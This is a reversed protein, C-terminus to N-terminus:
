ASRNLYAESALRPRLLCSEIRRRVVVGSEVTKVQFRCHARRVGSLSRCSGWAEFEGLDCHNIALTGTLSIRLRLVDVSGGMSALDFTVVDENAALDM